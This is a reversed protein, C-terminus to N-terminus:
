SLTHMVCYKTSVIKVAQKVYLLGRNVSTIRLHPSAIIDGMHAALHLCFLCSAAMCDLEGKTNPSPPLSPPYSLSM